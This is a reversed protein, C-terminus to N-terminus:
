CWFSAVLSSSHMYEDKSSQSSKLVSSASSKLSKLSEEEDVLRSPYKDLPTIIISSKSLKIM